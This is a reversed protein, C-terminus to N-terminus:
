RVSRLVASRKGRNFSAFYVSEGAVFPPGWTRTLDGGGPREVKVVDAGADALLMTAFPGSLVQTFDLVRIGKLPLSVSSNGRQAATLLKHEAVM